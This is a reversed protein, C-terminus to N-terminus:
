SADGNTPAIALVKRRGLAFALAAAAFVLAAVLRPVLRSPASEMATASLLAEHREAEVSALASPAPTARAGRVTANAAPTAVSAAQAPPVRVTV